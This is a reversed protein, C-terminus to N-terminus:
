VGNKLVEELEKRKMGFGKIGKEKALTLLENYKYDSLDKEKNGVVKFLKKLKDIDTKTFRNEDIEAYGNESFKFLQIVRMKGQKRVRKAVVRNPTSKLIM